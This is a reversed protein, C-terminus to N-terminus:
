PRVYPPADGDDGGFAHRGTGARGFALSDGVLLMDVGSKDAWLATPYDYATLETLKRKGKAAMVEPVTVRKSM